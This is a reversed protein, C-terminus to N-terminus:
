LGLRDRLAFRTMALVLLPSRLAPGGPFPLAPVRAMTGFGEALYQIALTMLQGAHTVTGVGYGSYGSTSLIKAAVHALYPMRRAAIALRGGWAYDIMVDRLHPFIESMPKPVKAAIDAPFRNGYSEDFSTVETSEHIRVEAKAAAQALGWAFNLPHLPAADM